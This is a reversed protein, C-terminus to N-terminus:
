KLEEVKFHLRCTGGFRRHFEVSSYTTVVRFTTVSTIVEFVIYKFTSYEPLRSLATSIPTPTRTGTFDLIKDEGCRGSGSQHGGLRGYLRYRLSKGRPYLSRLTFSVVWRWSIGLDLFRPDICGSGWVGEHSVKGKQSIQHHQCCGCSVEAFLASVRFPYNGM